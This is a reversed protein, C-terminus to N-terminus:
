GDLREASPDSLLPVAIILRESPVRKSSSYTSPTACKASTAWLAMSAYLLRYDRGHSGAGLRLPPQHHRVDINRFFCILKGVRNIVAVSFAAADVKQIIVVGQNVYPNPCQPWMRVNESEFLAESLAFVTAVSKNSPRTNQRITSYWQGYRINPNTTLTVFVGSAGFQGYRIGANGHWSSRRLDRRITPATLGYLLCTKVPAM